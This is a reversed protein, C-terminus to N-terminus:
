RTRETRIEAKPALFATADAMASDTLASLCWSQMYNCDSKDSGAPSFIPIPGWVCSEYKQVYDRYLCVKGTANDYIKMRATWTQVGYDATLFSFLALAFSSVNEADSVFPGSFVVDIRYRPASTQVTFGCKELTDVARRMYAATSSVQPVYTESSVVRAYHHRRRRGPRSAYVTEYGYVPIYTTVTAEFGSLQVGLSKDPDVSTHAIEPFQTESVTFCGAFLLSLSVAATIRMNM